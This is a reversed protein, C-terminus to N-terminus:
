TQDIRVAHATSKLYFQFYKWHSHEFNWHSFVLKWSPYFKKPLRFTRTIFSSWVKKPAELKTGEHIYQCFIGRLRWYGFVTIKCRFSFALQPNLITPPASGPLPLGTSGMWTRNTTGSDGAALSPFSLYTNILNSGPLRLTM